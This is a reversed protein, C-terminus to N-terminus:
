ALGKMRRIGWEATFCGLALLFFWSQDWLPFSYAEQIPAKASELKKVFGPLDEMRLVKGGTQNAIERLLKVNPTLSQFEKALPESSWGTKAEGLIMGSSNKITATALYAGSDRPIYSTEYMGLAKQEAPLIVDNTKGGAEPGHVAIRVEANELPEFKDNKAEVVLRMSEADDSAPEARISFQKPVDAISWRAIQRWQKQLDAQRHEDGMGSRWLDGIMMALVRGSGFRQMVVGPYKKGDASEATALVVAGPKVEKLQNLTGFRPLEELRSREEQETSRLRMWPQLWGERTLEFKFQTNLEPRPLRDLYVPLMEGIPTRAYKGDQLSDAGGLMVLSGGRESVYRQLLMMQDTTFFEAELDAIIVAEYGYLAEPTKPFGERLEFEDKTNLRIMVPQDYRATEEDEKNFGRFLPNSSEGMRGRFTFKPERKAIRILAVLQVESDESIARNLFKFEWNPRGSIYLIRHPGRGRDVPVIASNTWETAEVANSAGAAGSLGVRVKYFAIGPQNTKIEFRFPLEENNKHIAIEQKAIVKEGSLVEVKASEGRLGNAQVAGSITLPADEFVTQSASTREIALDRLAEEKGLIVPYIPPSGPASKFGNELDTANGDTFLLVGALPQGMFRERVSQLAKGLASSRGEFDLDSFDRTSQLRSDFFYRKTAYTQELQEMWPKQPGTLERSLLEGRTQKEGADKLRLGMSNDAVIAFLNAGERPRRTTWMPELLFVLLLGLGLVKLVPCVYRAWGTLHGRRNNWINLGLGIFFIVVGPWLWDQAAFSLSGLTMTGGDHWAVAVLSLKAWFMKWPLGLGQNNRETVRGFSC